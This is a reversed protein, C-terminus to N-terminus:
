IKGPDPRTWPKERMFRETEEASPTLAKKLEDAKKGLWWPIADAYHKASNVTVHHYECKGNDQRDCIMQFKDIHINHFNKNVDGEEFGPRMICVHLGPGEKIIERFCDAEGHVNFSDECFSKTARMIKRIAVPDHWTVVFGESVQNGGKYTWGIGVIEKVQPWIKQEASICRDFVEKIVGLLTQPDDTLPGALANLYDELPRGPWEKEAYRKHSRL